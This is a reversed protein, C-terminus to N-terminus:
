EGGRGGPFRKLTGNVIRWFLRKNFDAIRPDRSQKVKRVFDDAQQPTMKECQIGQKTKWDEYLEKVAKNYDSHGDGFNHGDPIPGTTARDFVQRAEPPLPENKWISQPIFHHGVGVLGLPDIDNLPQADVYLYPNIGGELGIPDSQCYRGTSPDYCDRQYNYNTNTERDFYQGPFRLNLTFPVGNGDADEDPPALGFPETLPSNRWVVTNAENTVLRPTGLHDTHLYYVATGGGSITINIPASASIVGLNDTANATITYNGSAVKNWLFSYPASTASGILTAGNYFEVKAIAGDTDSATATLTINASAPFSANNTPSTLSITPPQNSVVTITVPPSTATGGLDDTAKATLTYTGAAVNSWAAGYPASTATGILAAGQYFEIKAISGDADTAKALLIVNAPATFSQNAAPTTLTVSPPQNGTVTVAVAASTTIANGNDTAKATITYSGAPVNSWTFSYPAAPASGILTAGNYFEVKTVAGDTDSATATLAISAPATFNANNAPSTLTVTPAANAANISVADIFSSNDGTPNTGQFQLTHAGATVTFAASTYGAFAFSAPTIPTGVPTGDILIQLPQVQTGRRAAAFSVTYSGAGFLLSQSISGTGQIFATQAGAPAAAAAWASGNSQIGASSFTWGANALNYEYGGSALAPTEFSPNALTGPAAGVMVSIPSSTTTGNGNDTAKATITYNGAPVNSWTFGYPAATASGILTTGSYFEVKTITGDADSAAATLTISAPATFSTNNASSTLSVTPAANAANISVADIFSSNDGTPNTGQFQLTHAGATVTFAASTYDAFAYSEPRIPTGFPTGDILIQLPQVQTGRRAASFSVTYSGASFLLTQSISGTGQIFATQAGAPAAAGAWASGNSQIGASSFTWGAGALNYEYAGSALLPTEFSPNALTGPAAGVTLTIPSSTAVANANDTAKATVTYTGAGVGNVTLTYPASTATGILTTGSYFEVKSVTGDADSAAATLTISAPATFNANNAPSTLSVTPPTNALAAPYISVADIFSSNDGNPNTGQFHLTHTGAAVTFAASTYAAFADGAPTIPSGVPIGDILLQLPQSQGLRRAATFSVTYSGAPLTLTQAINGASQVFATQAGEPAAAAQWASGNSQVGASSFSWGVGAPGYEYGGFALSPAEFGPNSLGGVPPTALTVADILTSNDGSPNTGQFQLTHTGATVTFNESTYTAFNNGAPAIPSGIPTGDILIQLPQVQSVRRAASFRVTYTGAALTLSQAVSGVNQVFATQTGEPAAAAAWASGNSQIGAGSFVWDAAAPGYAYTGAALAPTEFGGNLITQATSPFACLFGTLSVLIAVCLRAFRNM